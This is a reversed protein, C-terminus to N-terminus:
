NIKGALNEQMKLLCKHDETWIDSICIIGVLELQNMANEM